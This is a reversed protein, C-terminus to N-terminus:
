IAIQYFNKRLKDTFHFIEKKIELASMLDKGRMKLSLRFIKRTKYQM